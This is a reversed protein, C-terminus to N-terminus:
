FDDKVTGTHYGNAVYVDEDGDRDYDMALAGWSWGADRVGRQNTEEQFKGNGLNLYLSNGRAALLMAERVRDNQKQAYPAIRSGANSYMNAVYLDLKSDHNFDAWLVGMGAGRHDLGAEEGKEEFFGKGNNLYLHNRGFDNAIYLDVDGDDDYDAFGAAYSWGTHTLGRESAKNQFRLNGQNILLLNQGGNNADIFHNPEIDTRDAYSGVFIDLDDDGDVDAVSIQTLPGKWSAGFAQQTYPEFKKGTNRFFLLTTGPFKKLDQNALVLDHDGDGDFDAFVAGRSNGENDLGWAHGQEVFTGEPTQRLFLNYSSRSAYIDLRGDGDVDVVSLGGLDLRPPELFGFVEEVKEPGFHHDPIRENTANRFIPRPLVVRRDHQIHFASLAPDVGEYHSEIRFSEHFIGGSAMSGALDVKSSIIDVRNPVQRFSDTHIECHRVSAFDSRYSEWAELWQDRNGTFKQYASARSLTLHNSGSDVTFQSPLTFSLTATTPMELSQGDLLAKCLHTKLFKELDMARKERQASEEFWTKMALTTNQSRLLTADAIPQEKETTPTPKKPSRTCSAALVLFLLGGIGFARTMTMKGGFSGPRTDRITSNQVVVGPNEREEM